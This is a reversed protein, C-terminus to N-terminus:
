ARPMPPSRARATRSAARWRPETRPRRRCSDADRAHAFHFSSSSPAAHAFIDIDPSSAARRLRGIDCRCAGSLMLPPADHQCRRRSVAFRSLTYGPTMNYTLQCHTRSMSGASSCPYRHHMDVRGRMILAAVASANKARVRAFLQLM